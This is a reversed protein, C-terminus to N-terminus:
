PYALFLPQKRLVSLHLTWTFHSPVRHRLLPSTFPFSAFPTHLPYGTGMVSGRFMTYGANRGSIRVGRSGTTSQVSVGVSKFPSTRKASLRFRTEARTDDCKFRLRICKLGCLPNKYFPNHNITMFNIKKTRHFVAQWMKIRHHYLPAKFVCVCIIYIKYM